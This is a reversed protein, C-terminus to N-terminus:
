TFDEEDEEVETNRLKRQLEIFYGPTGEKTAAEAKALVAPGERQVLATLQASAKDTTLGEPLKKALQKRLFEQKAEDLNGLNVPKAHLKTGKALFYALWGAREPTAGERAARPQKTGVKAWAAPFWQDKPGPHAKVSETGDKKTVPNKAQYVQSNYQDNLLRTGYLLLTVIQADSCEEIPVSKEWYDPKGSRGFGFVLKNTEAHQQMALELVRNLSTRTENTM